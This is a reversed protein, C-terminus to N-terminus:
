KAPRKPAGAASRAKQLVAAARPAVERTSLLREAAARATADTPDHNVLEEVHTIALAPTEAEGVYLEVLRRRQLIEVPKPLSSDALAKEILACALKFRKTKRCHLELAELVAPHASVLAVLGKCGDESIQTSAPLPTLMNVVKRAIADAAQPQSGAVRGYLEILRQQDGLAVVRRELRVFAERHGPVISLVRDLYNEAMSPDGLVGQFYDAAHMLLEAQAWPEIGQLRRATAAKMYAEALENDKGDRAAAGHLGEWLEPHPEGARLETMLTELAGPPQELRKDIMTKLRQLRQRRAKEAAESM